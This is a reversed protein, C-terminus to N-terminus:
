SQVGMRWTLWTSIQGDSLGRNAAGFVPNGVERWARWQVVGSFAEVDDVYYPRKCGGGCLYWYCLSEMRSRVAVRMSNM